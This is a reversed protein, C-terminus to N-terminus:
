SSTSTAPAEGKPLTRLGSMGMFENFLYQIYVMDLEKTLRAPDWKANGNTNGEAKNLALCVSELTRLAWDEQSPAPDRKVMEQGQKIYAEAEDYSLPSIKLTMGDMTVERVRM